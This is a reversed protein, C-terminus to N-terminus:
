EDKFEAMGLYALIWLWVCPEHNSYLEFYVELTRGEPHSEFETRKGADDIMQICEERTQPLHKVDKVFGSYMNKTLGNLRKNGMQLWANMAKLLRGHLRNEEEVSDVLDNYDKDDKKYKPIGYFIFHYDIGLIALAGGMTIIFGVLHSAYAGTYIANIAMSLCLFTCVALLLIHFAIEVNSTKKKTKKKM